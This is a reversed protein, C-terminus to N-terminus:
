SSPPPLMPRSSPLRAMTLTLPRSRQVAPCPMPFLRATDTCAMCLQLSSAVLGDLSYNEILGTCCRGEDRLTKGRGKKTETGGGVVVAVAVVCLQCSSTVKVSMAASVARAPPM